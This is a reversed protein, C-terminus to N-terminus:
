RGRFEAFGFAALALASVVLATGRDRKGATLGYTLAGAGLAFTIMRAPDFRTGAPRRGKELVRSSLAITAVVLPVNLFFIARRGLYETLVGGLMPGAATSLGTVAGFVGMARGLDPGRYVSGILAFATV